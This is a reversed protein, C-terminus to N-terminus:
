LIARARSVSSKGNDLAVSVKILDPYCIVGNESYAYNITLTNRETIRYSQKM